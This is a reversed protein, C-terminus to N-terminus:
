TFPLIVGITFPRLEPGRDERFMDILSYTAFLNIPGWGIRATADLVFPQLHFSDKGKQKQKGGGDVNYYVQKSHSGMRLGGIVGLSIHFSNSRHHSNTQYEFLVPIMLYSATLKSKTYNRTPDTDKYGYIQASDGSLIVSNSFRYNVWKIGMGTVLGFHNNILNFSQQFFNINFNTSKEYKLELFEYGKPMNLSGEPTLYGNVGLELGAWNGKFRRINCRKTKIRVGENGDVIVIKRKGSGLDIRITDGDEYLSMNNLAVGEGSNTKQGYESSENSNILKFAPEKKFSLESAGTLKAILISDPNVSADSSGSAVVNTFINKTGYSDFDSAGSIRIDMSDVKGYVSADSAGSQVSNLNYYNLNLKADSAGSLILELSNGKLQGITHLESAGSLQIHELQKIFVHVQSNINSSGKVEIILIGNINDLKIKNAEINDGKLQLYCSDSQHVYVDVPQSIEFGTFEGTKLTVQSQAYTSFSFLFLLSINLIITKM